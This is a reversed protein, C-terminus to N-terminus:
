IEGIEKMLATVKDAHEKTAEPVFGTGYIGELGILNMSITYGAWIGEDIFLDRLALINNLYKTAGEVDGAIYCERFKKSNYPVCTFMGDLVRPLGFSLAADFVDLNSFLVSFEPMNLQILRALVIDGTKIGKINPHKALEQIMPYTIKCKTAVPLDYLYIPKESIDAVGKFYRLINADSTMGYFPTTLVLGDFNLGKLMECREKVRFVSNDMAGIFLPVRGNVTEAAVRATEAFTKSSLFPEAGMSGMCLMGSTGAEIMMEIQKRYSDAMLNGDKDLPTGLAPYFGNKLEM